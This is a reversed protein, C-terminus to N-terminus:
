AESPRRFASNMSVSGRIVIQSFISRWITPPGYNPQVNLCLQPTTM